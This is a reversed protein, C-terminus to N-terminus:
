SNIILYNKITNELDVWPVCGRMNKAITSVNTGAKKGEIAVDMAAKVKTESVGSAEYIWLLLEPCLLKSYVRSKASDSWLLTGDVISPYLWSDFFHWHQNPEHQSKDVLLGLKKALDIYGGSSQQYTEIFKDSLPYHKDKTELYDAIGRMTITGDIIAPTNERTESNISSDGTSASTDISASDSLSTEVSTDTSGTGYFRINDVGCDMTDAISTETYFTLIIERFNYTPIEIDRLIEGNKSSVFSQSCGTSIKTYTREQKLDLLIKTYGTVQIIILRPDTTSSAPMRMGLTNDDIKASSTQTVKGDAVIIGDYYSYHATASMNGKSIDSFDITKLLVSDANVPLTINNHLPMNLVVLLTTSVVGVLAIFSEIFIALKKKNKV